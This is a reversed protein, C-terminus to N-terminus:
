LQMNRSLFTDATKQLAATFVMTDGFHWECDEMRLCACVQPVSPCLRAPQPKELGASGNSGFRREQGQLCRCSAFTQMRLQQTAQDLGQKMM